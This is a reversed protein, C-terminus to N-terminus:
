NVLNHIKNVGALQFLTTLMRYHHPPPPPPANSNFAFCYFRNLLCFNVIPFCCAFKSSFGIKTFFAFLISYWNFYLIAITELQLRISKKVCAKQTKNATIIVSLKGNTNSILNALKLRRGSWNRSAKIFNYVFVRSHLKGTISTM